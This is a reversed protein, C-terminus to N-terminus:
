SECFKIRMLSCPAKKMVLENVVRVFVFSYPNVRLNVDSDSSM